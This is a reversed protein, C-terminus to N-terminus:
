FINLARNELYTTQKSPFERVEKFSSTPPTAFFAKAILRQYMPVDSVEFCWRGMAHLAVFNDPEALLARQFYDRIQYASQIRKRIGEMESIYNLFVGYWCNCNPHEPNMQLGETAAKFGEMVFKKYIKKDKRGLTLAMDRCCVAYRWYLEPDQMNRRLIAESIVQYAAELEGARHLTTFKDIVEEM